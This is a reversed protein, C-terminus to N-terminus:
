ATKLKYWYNGYLGDSPYSDAPAEITEILTVGDSIDYPVYLIKTKSVYSSFTRVDFMAKGTAEDIGTFYHEYMVNATSPESKSSMLTTAYYAKNTKFDDVELWGAARDSVTFMGNASNFTYTYGFYFYDQTTSFGGNTTKYSYEGNSKGTIRYLPNGNVIGSSNAGVDLILKGVSISSIATSVPSTLTFLSGDHTCQSSAMKTVSNGITASSEEGFGVDYVEFLANQLVYWYSGAIGNLPYKGYDSGHATGVLTGKGNNLVTYKKWVYKCGQSLIGPLEIM